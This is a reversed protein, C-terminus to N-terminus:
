NLHMPFRDYGSAGDRANDITKIVEEDNVMTFTFTQNNPPPLYSSVPSSPEAITASLNNGINVFYENFDNPTIRSTHNSHNKKRGTITNIVPVDRQESPENNRRKM